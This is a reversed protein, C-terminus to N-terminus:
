TCLLPGWGISDSGEGPSSATAQCPKLVERKVGFVNSAPSRELLLAPQLQRGWVLNGGKRISGIPKPSVFCLCCGGGGSSETHSRRVQALPSFATARALVRSEMIVESSLSPLHVSHTKLSIIATIYLVGSNSLCGHINKKNGKRSWRCVAGSYDIASYRQVKM